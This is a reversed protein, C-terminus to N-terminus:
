YNFRRITPSDFKSKLISMLSNLDSKSEKVLTHEKKSIKSLGAVDEVPDQAAECLKSTLSPRERQSKQKLANQRKNNQFVIFAFHLSM